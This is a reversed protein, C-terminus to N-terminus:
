RELDREDRIDWMERRSRRDDVYDRPLHDERPPEYHEEMDLYRRDEIRARDYPSGYDKDDLRRDVEHLRGYDGDREHDLERGRDYSRDTSHPYTRDYERRDLDREIREPRDLSSKRIIRNDNPSRERRGDRDRRDRETSHGKRSSQPLREKNIPIARDGSPKDLGRDDRRSRERTRREEEEKAALKKLRERERQREQCRALAEEREKERALRRERERDRERERSDRRDKRPKPENRDNQRTRCFFYQYDQNNM